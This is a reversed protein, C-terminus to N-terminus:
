AQDATRATRGPVSRSAPSRHGAPSAPIPPYASPRKVPQLRRAALGPSAFPAMRDQPQPAIEYVLPHEAFTNSRQVTAPFLMEMKTGYSLRISCRNGLGFTPPELGRPVALKM